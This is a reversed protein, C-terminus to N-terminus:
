GRLELNLGKSQYVKQVKRSLRDKEEESLGDYNIGLLSDFDYQNLPLEGRAAANELRNVAENVDFHGTIMAYDLAGNGTISGIM